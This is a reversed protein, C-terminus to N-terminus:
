AAPERGTRLHEAPGGGPDRRGQADRGTIVSVEGGPQYSYWVPMVLPARGGAPVALVGVHVQALFEEREAVSM